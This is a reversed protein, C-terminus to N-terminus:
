NKIEIPTSFDPIISDYISNIRDFFKLLGKSRVFGYDIRDPDEYSGMIRDWVTFLKGYNRNIGRGPEHHITHHGAHLFIKCPIWPVNDHVLIAFLGAFGTAVM